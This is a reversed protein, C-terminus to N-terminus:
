FSYNHRHNIQVLVIDVSVAHRFSINQGDVEDRLARAGIKRSTSLPQLTGGGHPLICPLQLCWISVKKTKARKNQFWIKVQSEELNLERALHRRRSENLYRDKDFEAVLRSVQSVTFSTRPRKESVTGNSKSRLKRMRPGVLCISPMRGLEMRCMDWMRFRNSFLNESSLSLQCYIGKSVSPHSQPYPAYQIIRSVM